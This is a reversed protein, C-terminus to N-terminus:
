KWDWLEVKNALKNAREGIRRLENADLKGDKLSVLVEWGLAKIEDPADKWKRTVLWKRFRTWARNM